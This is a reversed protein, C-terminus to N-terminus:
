EAVVYRGRADYSMKWEINNRTGPIKHKLHTIYLLLFVLASIVTFISYIQLTLAGGFKKLLISGVFNGVAMGLGEKMAGMIGQVSAYTGPLSISNAFAVITAHSLVYSPGQTLCEALIIWWPTPAISILGMRIAYSTLSLIFTYGYGLKQLIKGFLCFMIGCGFIGAALTLGEILKIKSMYGTKMALDEEYLFLFYLMYGDLAGVIAAFCLMVVFSKYKLLAYVDALINTSTSIRPLDLKRCCILDVCSFVFVLLFAPTYSTYTKGQSWTDVTYGTLLAALSYGVGGWVRQKGYETETNKGLIEACIADTICLFVNVGTNGLLMLVVFGWFTISTYLHNDEVSNNCSVNCNNNETSREQCLPLENINLLCTTNPSIIAEKEAIRFSLRTSFNTDKCEWHCMISKMGDYSTSSNYDVDCSPLSACSVNQFQDDLVIPEELSPLFYLMIYSGSSIVLIIMFILKKKTYFYDLLFGVIPKVIIYLIPCTITITAMVLPSVGLQKGYVPLFPFIAGINAMFFFYHAKLSLHTYKIKM